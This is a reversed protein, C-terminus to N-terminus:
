DKKPLYPLYISKSNGMEGASLFITIPSLHIQDPNSVLYAYYGMESLQFMLEHVETHSRITLLDIWFKNLDANWYKNGYETSWPTSAGLLTAYAMVEGTSKFM